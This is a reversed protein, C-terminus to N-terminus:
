QAWEALNARFKEASYFDVAKNSRKVAACQLYPLNSLAECIALALAESSEEGVAVGAGAMKVVEQTCTGETYVIPKGLMVAEIAVRSVRARYSESRYPLVILDARKLFDLYADDTLLDNSFEVREDQLLDPDPRCWRSDPLIFDEPWQMVFRIPADSPMNKFVLRIAGQFIDSGKEYRALGPAVVVIPKVPTRTPLSDSGLMSCDSGIVAERGVSILQKSDAAVCEENMLSRSDSILLEAAEPIDVPHPFLVVSLGTFVQIEDRMGLTEAALVVQGRQVAPKLLAFCFKAFLNSASMRYRGQSDRQGPGIVFLLLFRSRSNRNKLALHAFALLHKPRTSLSLVWDYPEHVTLWSLLDRNLSFNHRVGGILGQSRSDVRCDRSLWPVVGEVVTKVKENADKHGLVEVWDGESRFGRALDSIYRPWHGNGARLAEEVILIRM